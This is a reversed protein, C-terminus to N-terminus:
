IQHGKAYKQISQGKELMQIHRKAEHEENEKDYPTPDKDFGYRIKLYRIMQEKVEADASGIQM